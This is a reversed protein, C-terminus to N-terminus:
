SVRCVVDLHVYGVHFRSSIHADCRGRRKDCCRENSPGFLASCFSEAFQVVDTAHQGFFFVFAFSLFNEVAELHRCGNTYEFEIRTSDKANRERRLALTSPPMLDASRANDILLVYLARVDDALDHGNLALYQAWLHHLSVSTISQYQLRRNSPTQRSSEHRNAGLESSSGTMTFFQVVSSCCNLSINNSELKMKAKNSVHVHYM